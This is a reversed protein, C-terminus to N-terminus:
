ESITLATSVIYVPARSWARHGAIFLGILVASLAVHWWKTAFFGAVVAFVAGIDFLKAIFVAVIVM